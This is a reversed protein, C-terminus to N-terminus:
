QPHEKQRERERQSEEDNEERPLLISTKSPPFPEAREIEDQILIDITSLVDLEETDGDAYVVTYTTSPINFRVIQGLFRGHGAFTKAVRLGILDTALVERGHFMVRYEPEEKEGSTQTTEQELGNRTTKERERSRSRRYSRSSLMSNSELNDEDHRTASNMSPEEKLTDHEPVKTEKLQLLSNASFSPLTNSEDRTENMQSQEAEAKETREVAKLLAGTTLRNNSTSSIHEHDSEHSAESHEDRGSSPSRSSSDSRSDSRSSEHESRM